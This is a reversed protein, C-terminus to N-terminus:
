PEVVRLYSVNQADCRSWVAERGVAGPRLGGRGKRWGERGDREWGRESDKSGNTRSKPTRMNPMGGAGPKTLDCRPEHDALRYDCEVAGLVQQGGNETQMKGWVASGQGRQAAM